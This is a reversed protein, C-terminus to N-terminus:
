IESLLVSYAAWELCKKQYDAEIQRLWEGAAARKVMQAAFMSEAEDLISRHYEAVAITRALQLAIKRGAVVTTGVRTTVEPVGVPYGVFDLLGYFGADM